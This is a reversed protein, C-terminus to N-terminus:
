HGKKTKKKKTEKKKKKGPSFTVCLFVLLSPIDTNCSQAPTYDWLELRHVNEEINTYKSFETLYFLTKCYNKFGLINVNNYHLGSSSSVVYFLYSKKIWTLTAELHHM